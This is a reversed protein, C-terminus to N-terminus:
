PNDDPRRTTCALSPRYTSVNNISALADVGNGPAAPVYFDVASARSVLYVLILTVQLVLLPRVGMRPPHLGIPRPCLDPRAARRRHQAPPRFFVPLRARM